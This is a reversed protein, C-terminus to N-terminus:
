PSAPTAPSRAAVSVPATRFLDVFLLSMSRTVTVSVAKANGAYAGTTPPTTVTVTTNNVGNQFGARTAEAQAQAGVTQTLSNLIEMAAAQAAADAAIQASRKTSYWLGTETALGAIGLLAPAIGAVLAATAGKRSRLLRGLITAVAPGRRKAGGDHPTPGVPRSSDPAGCDRAVFGHFMSKDLISVISIAKGPVPRM